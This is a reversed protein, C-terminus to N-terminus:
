FTRSVEAWEMELGLGTGLLLFHGPVFSPFGFQWLTSGLVVRDETPWFWPLFFCCTARPCGNSSWLLSELGYPSAMPSYTPLCGWSFSDGRYLICVVLVRVGKSTSTVGPCPSPPWLLECFALFFPQPSTCKLIPMSSQCTYSFSSRFLPIFLLLSWGFPPPGSIPPLSRRSRSPNAYEWGRALPGKEKPRQAARNQTDKMGLVLWRRM